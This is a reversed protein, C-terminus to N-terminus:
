TNPIMLHADTHVVIENQRFFMIVGLRDQLELLDSQSYIFSNFPECASHDPISIVWYIRDKKEIIHKTDRLYILSKELQYKAEDVNREINKELCYKMEILLVFGYKKAREAFCLGECQKVLNGQNDKLIDEYEEFNIAGIPIHRHNIIHLSNLKDFPQESFVVGVNAYQPNLKSYETYDGVFIDDNFIKYEFIDKNM